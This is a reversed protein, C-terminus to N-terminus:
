HQLDDALTTIDYGEKRVRLDFYILISPILLLSSFITQIFLNFADRFLPHNYTEMDFVIASIIAIIIILAYSFIIMLFNTCFNRWYFGKGLQKSRQLAAKGVTYELIFVPASLMYWTYFIFAPIIFLIFGGFFYLAQLLLILLYKKYGAQYIRKYSRKFTPKIGMSIESLAVILAPYALYIAIVSILPLIGKLNNTDITIITLDFLSACVTVILVLIVVPALTIQLLLLFHKLFIRISARIIGGSSYEQVYNDAPSYTIDM